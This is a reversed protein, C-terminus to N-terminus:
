MFRVSYGFTHMNPVLNKLELNVHVPEGPWLPKSAQATDLYQTPSLRRIGILQKNEDEFRLELSPYAQKFIATNEFIFHLLVANDKDPHQNMYNKSIHFAQVDRTPPLKCDLLLCGKDLWPRIHPEQLIVDPRTFWLYQLVLTASLLLALLSWTFLSRRGTSQVTVSAVDLEDELEKLLEIEHVDDEAVAEGSAKSLTQPLAELRQHLANFIRKCAQCCVRGEAQSLQESHIRYISQCQPCQTYM